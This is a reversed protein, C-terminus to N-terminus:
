YLNLKRYASPTMGVASRFARSFYYANPFGCAGAVDGVSMATTSLLTRALDFRMQLIYNKPTTGYGAAFLTAFYKESMGCLSALTRIRVEGSKYHAAIYAIAPEIKRLKVSPLYRDQEANQLLAVIKYLISYLEATYGIKKQKYVGVASFFCDGLAALDPYLKGIARTKAAAAGDFDILICRCDTRPHIEYRVGKPLYLFMNERATFSADPYVYDCEGALYYVFGHVLRPKFYIGETKKTYIKVARSIDSVQLNEMFVPTMKAFGGASEAEKAEIKGRRGDGTLHTLDFYQECFHLLKTKKM